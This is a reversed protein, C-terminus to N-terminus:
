SDCNVAPEQVPTASTRLRPPASDPEFLEPRARYWENLRESADRAEDYHCEALIQAHQAAKIEEEHRKATAARAQRAAVAATALEARRAHLALLEPVRQVIERDRRMREPSLGFDRAYAALQEADSEVPTSRSLIEIYHTWAVRRSGDRDHALFAEDDALAAAAQEVPDRASRQKAAERAEEDEAAERQARHWAAAKKARVATAVDRPIKVALPGNSGAQRTQLARLINAGATWTGTFCNRVGRLDIGILDPLNALRYQRTPQIIDAVTVQLVEPPPQPGDAELLREGPGVLPPGDLDDAEQFDEAQDASQGHQPSAPAPPPTPGTALPDIGLRANLLRCSRLVHAPISVTIDEAEIWRLAEAAGVPRNGFHKIVQAADVGIMEALTAVSYKRPPVLITALQEDPLLAGEPVAVSEGPTAQDVVATTAGGDAQNLDAVPDPETHPRRTKTKSM